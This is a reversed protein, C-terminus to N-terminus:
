EENEEINTPAPQGEIETDVPREWITGDQILGDGDGDVADPVYKASKKNNEKKPVAKVVSGVPELDEGLILHGIYHEPVSVAKGTRTNIAFAM